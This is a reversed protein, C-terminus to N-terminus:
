NWSLSSSCLLSSARFTWNTEADSVRDMENQPPVFPPRWSSSSATVFRCAIRTGYASSPPNRDISWHRAVVLLTVPREDFACAKLMTILFHGDGKRGGNYRGVGSLCPDMEDVCLEKKTTATATTQIIYFSKHQGIQANLWRRISMNDRKNIKTKLLSPILLQMVRFTFHSSSSLPIFALTTWCGEEKSYILVPSFFLINYGGM